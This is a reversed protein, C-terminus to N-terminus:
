ETMFDGGRVSAVLQNPHYVPLQDGARWIRVIRREM